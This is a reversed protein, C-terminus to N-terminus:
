DLILTEILNQTSNNKTLIKGNKLGLFAHEGFKRM